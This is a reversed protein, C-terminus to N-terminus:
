AAEGERTLALAREGAPPSARGSARALLWIFVGMPVYWLGIVEGNVAVGLGVVVLLLAVAMGGRSAVRTARAFSGSRRWVAARLLRGGDLPLGPVLNFLAVGLNVAALTFAVAQGGTWGIEALRDSLLLFLSGLAISTAPGALAVAFEARPSPIEGDIEAVGGLLFLTIGRVHVGFRRAVIAHAVEHLALCGFFALATALAMTLREALPLRPLEDAFANTSAWVVLGLVLVWSAHIWVPVGVLTGLRVRYRRV